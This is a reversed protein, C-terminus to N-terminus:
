INDEEFKDSDALSHLQEALEIILSSNEVKQIRAVDFSSSGNFAGWIAGAMAGITDADGGLKHIKSLMDFCDQERYMLAFYLATVVSEIASIGNGLNNKITKLELTKKSEVVERCLAIKEHYINSECVGSLDVLISETSCDQIAAVTAMAILQAGEIALPHAHTIESAKIVNTKMKDINFPYCMALIPARMAAGNGFSGSKFKGRNVDQWDAGNKIKKLLRAASPGYGRSWQYSNAFTIALHQQDITRNELFSSALDISMQTDDTYRLKGDKTKGIAKWLLREIPGGEYSAGYADGIALGIFCGIYKDLAFM